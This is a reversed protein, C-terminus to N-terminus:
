FIKFFYANAEKFGPSPDAIGRPISISHDNVVLYDALKNSEMRIRDLKIVKFSGSKYLTM